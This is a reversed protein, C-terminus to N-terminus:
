SKKMFSVISFTWENKVFGLVQVVVIEFLEAFEFLKHYPISSASIKHWPKNITNLDNEM